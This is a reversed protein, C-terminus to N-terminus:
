QHVHDVVFASSLNDAYTKGAAPSHVSYTASFDVDGLVKLVDTVIHAHPEYEAGVKINDDLSLTITKVNNYFKQTQGEEPEVDKWGGIHIGISKEYVSVVGDSVVEVQGSAESGGEIGMAIYGANWSWFWAGAAPDLIGGAAGEQVGEEGIGVKFTISNYTGEPVNELGIMGSAAETENVLYYGKVEEANASVNMEDEYIEGNPGTLKIESIYYRFTSLNFKQGSNSTYPYNTSGPDELALQTTGVMNDFEVMFAGTNSVLDESDSENCSAVFLLSLGLLAVSLINKM